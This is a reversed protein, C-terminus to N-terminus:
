GNTTNSSSQTADGGAGSAALMAELRQLTAQGEATLHVADDPNQFFEGEAPPDAVVVDESDIYDDESIYLLYVHLYQESICHLSHSLRTHM